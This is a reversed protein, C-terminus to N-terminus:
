KRVVENVSAGGFKRAGGVAKARPPQQQQNEQEQLMVSKPSAVMEMAPQEVTTPQEVPPPALLAPVVSLQWERLAESASPRASPDDARMARVLARLPECRAHAALESLAAGAAYVDARTTVSYAVGASVEPAMYGDTGCCRMTASGDVDLPVSLGFDSLVVRREVGVRLTNSWKVDSHLVGVRHVTALAGLLEGGCRAAEAGDSLEGAEVAEGLPMVLVISARAMREGPLAVRAEFHALLAVVHAPAWRTLLAHVRLENLADVRAREKGDVHLVKFVFNGDGSRVTARDDMRSLLVGNAVDSAAFQQRSAPLSPATSPSSPPQVSTSKSVHRQFVSNFKNVAGSVTERASGADGFLAARVGHKLQAGGEHIGVMLTLYDVFEAVTCTNLNIKCLSLNVFLEQNVNAMMTVEVDVGIVQLGYSVFAWEEAAVDAQEAVYRSLDAATRLVFIMRRGDVEGNGGVPKVEGVLDIAGDGDRHLIDPARTKIKADGVVEDDGVYDINEGAGTRGRYVLNIQEPLFAGQNMKTKDGGLFPEGAATLVLISLHLESFGSTLNCARLRALSSMSNRVKRWLDASVATGRVTLKASVGDFFAIADVASRQRKLHTDRLEKAAAVDWIRMKVNDTRALLREISQRLPDDAEARSFHVAAVRADIVSCASAYSALHVNRNPGFSDARRQPPLWSTLLASLPQLQPM